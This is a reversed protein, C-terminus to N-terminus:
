NMAKLKAQLIFAPKKANERDLSFALVYNNFPINLYLLKDNSTYSAVVQENFQPRKPLAAALYHEKAKLNLQAPLFNISKSAVPQCPRPKYSKNDSNGIAMSKGLLYYDKKNSDAALEYCTADLWYYNAFIIGGNKVHTEPFRNDYYGILWDGCTIIGADRLISKQENNNLLNNLSEYRIEHATIYFNDANSKISLDILDTGLFRAQSWANADKLNFVQKSADYSIFQSNVSAWNPTYQWHKQALDALASCKVQRDKLEHSLEYYCREAIWTSSLSSPLYFPTVITNNKAFPATIIHRLADVAKREQLNLSAVQADFMASRQEGYVDALKASLRQKIEVKPLTPVPIDEDSIGDASAPQNLNSPTPPAEFIVKKDGTYPNYRVVKPQEYISNDKVGYTMSPEKAKQASSPDIKISTSAQMQCASLLLLSSALVSALPRSNKFIAM